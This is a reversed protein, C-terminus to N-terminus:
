LCPTILLPMQNGTEGAVIPRLVFTQKQIISEAPVALDFRFAKILSFLIAKTRFQGHNTGHEYVFPAHVLEM